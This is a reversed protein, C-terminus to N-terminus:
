ARQWLWGQPWAEQTRSIRLVGLQAQVMRMVAPRPRMEGAWPKANSRLSVQHRIISNTCSFKLRVLRFSPCIRVKRQKCCECRPIPNLNASRKNIHTLLATSSEPELKPTLSNPPPSPSSPSSPSPPSPPSPPSSSPSSLPSSM